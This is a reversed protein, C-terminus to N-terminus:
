WKLLINPGFMNNQNKACHLIKYVATLRDHSSFSQQFEFYHFDKQLTPLRIFGVWVASFHNKQDAMLFFFLNFTNVLM